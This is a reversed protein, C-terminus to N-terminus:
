GTSGRAAQSNQPWAPEQEPRTIGDFVNDGLSHIFPTPFDPPVHNMNVLNIHCNTIPYDPALETTPSSSTTGMSYITFPAALFGQRSTALFDILPFLFQM